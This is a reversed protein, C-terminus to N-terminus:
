TSVGAASRVLALEERNADITFSCAWNLYQRLATTEM